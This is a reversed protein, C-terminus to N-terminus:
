ETLNIAKPGLGQLRSVLNRNLGRVISRLNRIDVILHIRDRSSGNYAEHTKKNDFWWIEGTRMHVQESGCRLWSGADSQLVLHIRDRYDYYTNKSARGDGRLTDVHPYVRKHPALRALAVRAVSASHRRAFDDIWASIHPLQGAAKTPKGSFGRLPIASTERQSVATRQRTEDAYWLAPDRNLEQLLVEVDVGSELLKFNQM